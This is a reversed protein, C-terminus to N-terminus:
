LEIDAALRAAYITRANAMDNDNARAQAADASLGHDIWRAVLREQLVELPPALRISIDWLPHLARWPAQDFLLYNGEVIVTDCQAMIHGADPITADATRDFLPYRVDGLRALDRVLQVFGEADFTEPAGKRALLGRAELVSNDLHFGDMPVARAHAGGANLAKVLAEALTSKGSAPAGALGVLRRQGTYPTALIRDTLSHIDTMCHAYGTAGCCLLGASM